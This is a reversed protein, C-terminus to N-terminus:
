RPQRRFVPWRLLLLLSLSLAYLIAEGGIVKLSLWYHLVALIAAPYILRHLRGWHRGLRKISARNSSLALPLLLLLSSMGITLYPRHLLDDLIAAWDLYQDLILYTMLHLIAYFFAFLGLMRRLGLPWRWGSLRRLPSLTLTLLLLRLTWHGLEHSLTEIPNAGLQGALALWTLWALPLLCSFFVAPKLWRM